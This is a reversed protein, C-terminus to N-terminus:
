ECAGFTIIAVTMISDYIAKERQSCRWRTYYCKIVIYSGIILIAAAAILKWVAINTEAGRGDTGRVEILKKIKEHIYKLTNVETNGEKYLNAIEDIVNGLEGADSGKMELTAIYEKSSKAFEGIEKQFEANSNKPKNKSAEKIFDELQTLSNQLTKIGKNNSAIGVSKSHKELSELVNLQKCRDSQRYHLESNIFFSISAAFGDYFKVLNVENEDEIVTRLQVYATQFNSVAQQERSLQKM